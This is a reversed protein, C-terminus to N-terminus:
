STSRSSSRRRWRTPSSRARGSRAGAATTSPSRSGCSRSGSPRSSASRGRGSPGSLARPLRKKKPKPGAAAGARRGRGRAGRGRRCAGGRVAADAAEAEAAPEAVPQRRSRSTPRRQLSPRPPLGRSARARARRCPEEAAAEDAAEAVPQGRGPRPRRRRRRRTRTLWRNRVGESSGAREQDDPHTRDRAECPAAAREIELAGTAAQFRIKFLEQRSEGLKEDLEEDTLARLDQTKM